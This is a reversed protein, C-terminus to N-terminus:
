RTLNDAQKNKDRKIHKLSWKEIKSLKDLAQNRLKKMKEDKAKWEGNVQNVVLKSDGFITVHQIGKEIIIDLLYLLSLYEAQNNTGEGAETSYRYIPKMDGNNLYGGIKMEGPNPKASGDFFAIYSNDQVADFIMKGIIVEWSKITDRGYTSKLMSGFEGLSALAAMDNKIHDVIKKALEEVTINM